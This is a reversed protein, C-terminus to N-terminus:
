CNDMGGMERCRMTKNHERQERHCKKAPLIQLFTLKEFVKSFSVNQPFSNNKSFLVNMEFLAFFHEPFFRAYSKRM